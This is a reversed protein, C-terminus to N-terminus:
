VFEIKFGFLEEVDEKLKHAPREISTTALETKLGTIRAHLKKIKNKTSELNHEVEDYDASLEEVERTLEIIKNRTTNLQEIVLKFYSETFKRAQLKIKASNKDKLAGKEFQDIMKGLIGVIKLSNDTM